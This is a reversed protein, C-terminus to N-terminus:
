INVYSFTVQPMNLLLRPGFDEYELYTWNNGDPITKIAEIAISRIIDSGSLAVDGDGSIM